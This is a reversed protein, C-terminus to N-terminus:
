ARRRTTLETLYETFEQKTNRWTFYTYSQTFGIKALRYMMKPRTFAEALFLADPHRGRIDAIMWEWFPLPKTHPNDVRFIRVGQDVWFLVVDRLAMWLAPMARRPMSISMSSTRTNRRRTRRMDCRATPGGASGTRISSCGRIIRRASSPSTSRSRWATARAGRRGAARFDDLTGLAPHIADHGGDEAASRMLVAPTMRHPRLANNRGKRNTTGIPHIPPFIFCTSDWPASDRCPAQDCRRIHRAAGSRRDRFASVDRVLERIRGAPSRCRVPYTACSASRFAPRRDGPNGKGDATCAPCRFRVVADLSQLREAIDSLLARKPGSLDEIAARVMRRGEEIELTVMQGAAHKASLDHRFTDWLDWWAEITVRYRGIREPTFSAEWRDNTTPQMAVRHWGAEDAASWLLEAGLVDHGDAFIDAGVTIREGALRKVAFAGDPVVPRIDEIAIRTVAAYHPDLERERAPQIAPATPAYALVRVEGPTMPAIAEHPADEAEELVLAVGAQPPLPSLPLDVPAPRGLDPNILVLVARSAARMDPADARLLATVRDQPSTLQRMEGNVGRTAIRDVLTNAAAIEETLDCPAEASARAFDEPGALAGDFARRTAYEFGMPVFIGNGTAAAMRLALRYATPVDSGPPLRAALREFFSPEASAIVPAIRRLM